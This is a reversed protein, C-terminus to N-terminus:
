QFEFIANLWGISLAAVVTGVVQGVGGLIVVTAPGGEGRGSPIPPALLVALAFAGVACALRKTIGGGQPRLPQLQEPGRGAHQRGPHEMGRLRPRRARSM